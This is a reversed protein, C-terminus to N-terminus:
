YPIDSDDEEDKTPLDALPIPAVDHGFVYAEFEQAVRIVDAATPPKKGDKLLEVASSVSSQRVILIQRQAREEATEYTSKPSTNIKAGTAAPVAGATDVSNSSTVATWDWYGKENKILEVNFIEGKKADVMTKYVLPNSFSMLKKSSVQNKILDKYAIEAMKYKGKDEVDASIFQIQIQM